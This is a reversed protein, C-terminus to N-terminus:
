LSNLNIEYITLDYLQISAKFYYIGETSPLLNYEKNKKAEIKLAHTHVLAKVENHIFGSKKILAKIEIHFEFYEKM